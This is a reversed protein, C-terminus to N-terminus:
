CKNDADCAVVYVNFAVIDDGAIDELSRTKSQITNTERAM